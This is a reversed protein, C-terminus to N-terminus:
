QNGGKLNNNYNRCQEVLINQIFGCYRTEQCTLGSIKNNNKDYCDTVKGTEIEKSTLAYFIITLMLLIFVISAISLFKNLNM